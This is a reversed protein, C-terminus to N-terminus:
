PLIAKTSSTHLRLAEVMEITKQNSEGLEKVQLMLEAKERAWEAKEKDHQTEIFTIRNESRVKAEKLVASCEKEEALAAMDRKLRTGATVLLQFLRDKDFNVTQRLAEDIVDPEQSHLLM